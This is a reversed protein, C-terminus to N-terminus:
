IFVRNVCFQRLRLFLVYSTTNLQSTFPRGCRQTCIKVVQSFEECLAESTFGAESRVSRTLKGKDRIILTFTLAMEM